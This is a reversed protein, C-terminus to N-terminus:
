NPAVEVPKEQRTALGHGYASWRYTSVVNLLRKVETAADFQRGCAIDIGALLVARFRSQYVTPLTVLCADTARLYIRLAHVIKQGAHAGLRLPLGLLPLSGLLLQIGFFYPMYVLGEDRELILELFKSGAVSSSLAQGFQPSSTWFDRDLILQYPDWKSNRLIYLVQLMYSAYLGCISSTAPKSLDPISTSYCYQQSDIISLPTSSVDEECIEQLCGCFWRLDDEIDRGDLDSNMISRYNGDDDNAERHRELLRGTLTMLPLFIGFFSEEVHYATIEPGRALFHPLRPQSLDTDIRNPSRYLRTQVWISDRLPPFVSMYQTETFFLPENYCLSLHRDMIFLLWWLRRREEKFVWDDHQEEDSLTSSFSSHVSHTDHHETLQKEDTLM